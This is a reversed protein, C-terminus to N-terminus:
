PTDIERREALGCDLCVRQQMDDEDPEDWKGWQGACAPCVLAATPLARLRRRPLAPLRPADALGMIIFATGVGVLAVLWAPLFTTLANAFTLTAWFAGYIVALARYGGSM